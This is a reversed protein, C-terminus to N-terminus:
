GSRRRSWHDLWSAACLVLYVIGVGISVERYKDEAIPTLVFCTAAALAFFAARRDM